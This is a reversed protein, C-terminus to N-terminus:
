LKRAYRWFVRDVSCRVCRSYFSIPGVWPIVATRHGADRLDALCRLLLVRGLGTGRAPPTTGMPGFFGWERNQTSHASFAIIKKDQLALHLGVPKQRLGLEAELRWESGFDQEFFADLRKADKRTARRVEFGAEALRQEDTATDLPSSLDALLNVCDRGREFGNRELFTLAATYRPDLGPMFYNGPLALAEVETVDAARLRDLADGLLTTAVGARQSMSSVGFLGIWGRRTSSRHVTQMMGVLQDGRLAARTEFVYDDPRPNEFLKEELLKASFRDHILLPALLTHLRGTDQPTASVLTLDGPM